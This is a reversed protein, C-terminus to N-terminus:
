LKGECKMSLARLFFQERALQRVTKLYQDFDSNNHALDEEMAYLVEDIAADESKCLLGQLAAPSLVSAIAQANKTSGPCIAHWLSQPFPLNEVSNDSVSPASAEIDAVSTTPTTASAQDQLWAHLEGTKEQIQRMRLATSEEADEIDKEFQKLRNANGELKSQLELLRGIESTESDSVLQMQQRLLANVRDESLARPSKVPAPAERVTSAIATPTTLSLSATADSLPDRTSRRSSATQYRSGFQIPNSQDRALSSSASSLETSAFSPTSNQPKLRLPPEKGFLQGLMVLYEALVMHTPRWSDRFPPTRIVTGNEAVNPHNAMIFMDDTPTLVVAPPCSPYDLPLSLRLPLHYVVGKYSMPITGSLQLVIQSTSHSHAHEGLHVRLTPFQSVASLVEEFVLNPDQYPTPISSLCGALVGEVSQTQSM